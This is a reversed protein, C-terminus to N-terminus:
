LLGLEAAMEGAESRDAAGLRVLIDSVHHDVTKPSIFLRDAIETNTLGSAVLALVETQRPTLGAPSALTAPRPGRPIRAVGLERLRTRCRTAAPVAGLRDFIELAELLEEARDADGLSDAQEYPCGLREWAAAAARPEGAVRLAFPEVVIDSM